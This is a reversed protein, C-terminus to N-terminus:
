RSGDLHAGLHELADRLQAAERTVRTRLDSVQRELVSLDTQPSPRYREPNLDAHAVSTAPVAFAIEADEESIEHRQRWSQFLGGLRDIVEEELSFNSRGPTGLGSADVLLMEETRETADPSRVLWIALSISTDARLRPPLLVVGEIVGAEILAQRIEAERGARFLSGAPLVVGGRGSPKLQLVAVQLWALDSNKPPPPGFRWRPDLYIDAHGWDRMAYPPDLIVSDAKPLQSLDMALANGLRIDAPLGYLYCRSRTIRCVEENIEIGILSPPLDERSQWLAALLLLGGEGAAPDFIIGGDTDVLQCLLYSIEEPTSYRAAFRDAETALALANRSLRGRATEAQAFGRFEPSVEELLAFRPSFADDVADDLAVAISRAVGGDGPRVHSFSPVLLGDLERNLEEILDAARRLKRVFEAPKAEQRVRAWSAEAPVIPIDCQDSTDAAQARVCAEFYVLCAVCFASIQGPRWVGRAGDALAWLRTSAPVRGVIKSNEVLWREVEDLDFLAGSPAQVKPKPFDSHRKRWNGVASPGVQAIKAIEPIGVLASESATGQMATM